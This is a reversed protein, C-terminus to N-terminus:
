EVRVPNFNTTYDYVDMGEKKKLYNVVLYTVPTAIIEYSVKVFWHSLIMILITSVPLVGAFGISLVIVTDIAQGVVTSGITRSWLWKGKTAIKMKSLVFSNSFEGALYALFSALLFRPTNGLIQNYASQATFTNAAPLLGAIWIAAVMIVNCIFGLWIVRRAVSYGYVETLIDSIIYSIPFIIVAAPLIFPGVSIQKAIIINATLLCTIFLAVVILFRHSLKQM